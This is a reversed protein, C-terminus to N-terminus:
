NLHKLSTFYTKTIRLLLMMDLYHQREHVYVSYRNKDISPKKQARRFDVDNFENLQIFDGMACYAGLPQTDPSKKWKQISNLFNIKEMNYRKNAIGM